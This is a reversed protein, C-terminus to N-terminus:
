KFLSGLGGLFGRLDWDLSTSFYPTVRLVYAEDVDNTPDRGRFWTLGTGIRLGDTVRIGVGTFLSQSGFLDQRRHPEALSSLLLGMTMSFRYGFDGKVSLPVRRNVPQFYVNLGVTPVIREIGAVPLLAIGLDPGLYWGGRTEFAETSSGLFVLNDEVALGGRGLFSRLMADRRHLANRLSYAERVTGTVGDRLTKLADMTRATASDQAVDLLDQAARLAADTAQLNAIMVEVEAVSWYSQAPAPGAAPDSESLSIRGSVIGPRDAPGRALVRVVGAAELPVGFRDQFSLAAFRDLAAVLTKRHERPFRELGGLLKAEEARFNSEATHRALHARKLDILPARALPTLKVTSDLWSGKRGEAAGTAAIVRIVERRLTDITASDLASRIVSDRAQTRDRLQELTKAALAVQEEKTPRSSRYLCLAHLRNPALPPMVLAFSDPEVRAPRRWAPIRLKGGSACLTDIRVGAFGTDPLTILFAYVSDLEPSAAGTLVFSEDFPLVFKLPGGTASLTFRRLGEQALLSTSSLLLPALAALLWAVRRITNTLPM